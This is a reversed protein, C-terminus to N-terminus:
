EGVVPISMRRTVPTSDSQYDRLRMTFEFTGIRTPEGSIQGTFRNLSLGPPLTGDSVSWDYVPVGGSAHLDAEYRRGCRADPLPDASITLPAFPGVPRLQYGIARAALLDAKTILWRGQPVKGNFESGFCGRLSLPDVVHDFHDHVDFKPDKGLYSRLDDDHVVGDRPFARNAPNFILAHGIEHHVVSYLDCAQGAYNTARWWQEDALPPLWGRTNYNGRIEVELGGSRRIPLEQDDRKQFGGAGSPEGGSRIEPGAIGYAYLLYGKYPRSNLVIHSKKFGDPEFIWTQEAKAGVGQLHMDALYFAWDHAAQEVTARHSEDNFFATKDQSFDITIPFTPSDNHTHPATVHVSLNFVWRRGRADVFQIQLATDFARKHRAPFISASVALKRGSEFTIEKRPGQAGAESPLDFYMRPEAASLTAKVPLVAEGPPLISFQIAPNAMYGEWDVLTLGVARIDRGFLDEVVPLSAASTRAAGCLCLVFCGIALRALRMIRSLSDDREVQSPRGRQDAPAKSEIKAASADSM